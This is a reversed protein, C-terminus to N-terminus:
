HKTTQRLDDPMTALVHALVQLGRIGPIELHHRSIINGTASLAESLAVGISGAKQAEDEAVKIIADTLDSIAQKQEKSYGSM